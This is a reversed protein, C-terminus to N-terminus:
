KESIEKPLAEPCVRIYHFIYQQVIGAYPLAVEPLGDPLLYTMARKIWVDRPFSEIRGLGFLLTCDAVKIGVGVIKMLESRAEDIPMKRVDELVVEGNAIKKAADLIYRARFGTKLDALDEVTLKALCQATPFAFYGQGLDEGYKECLHKIIGKIRKINNNQSIIFSCIAEWPDQRLVRIGPAFSVAKELIPNTSIANKIESYDTKFDFYDQWINNYDLQSTNELIFEDNNKRITCIKNKVVGTFSSDPNEEWRFAQGCDLTEALCFDKLDSIVINNDKQTVFM